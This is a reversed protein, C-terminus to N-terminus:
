FGGLLNPNMGLKLLRDAVAQRDAGQAIAQRAQAIVADPSPTAGPAGPSGTPAPRGPVPAGPAPVPGSGGLPAGPPAGPTGPLRGRLLDEDRMATVDLGRKTAWEIWSAPLHTWAPMRAKIGAAKAQADSLATDRYSKDGTAMGGAAGALTGGIGRGQVAGQAAGALMDATRGWANKRTEDDIGSGFLDDWLPM